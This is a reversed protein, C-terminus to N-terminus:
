DAEEEDPNSTDDSYEKADDEDEDEGENNEMSNVPSPEEDEDRLIFKLRNTGRDKIKLM